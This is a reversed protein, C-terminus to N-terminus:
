REQQATLSRSAVQREPMSSRAIGDGMRKLPNLGFTGGILLAVACAALVLKGAAPALLGGGTERPPAFYMVRLIGAYYYLSIATNLVIAGVLTWGITAQWSGGNAAAGALAAILWFKAAFGALPPLGVLSFLCVAMSAAVLPDRWGAGAFDDLREDGADAAVLGLCLFAGFNMVAYILVYQAVAGIIATDRWAVSPMLAAAAILTGAHAISSYALLRRVSSQRYAAVNAVLMTTISVTAVLATVAQVFAPTPGGVASGLLWVVRVLLIVAASKSAVSLWTVVSLPAGEFVDPCWFHLPVASLKFGISGFLMLLAVVGVTFTAPDSLTSLRTAVTALDLSGAVGFLLSAGFAGLGTTAAGFVLYKVAAEASSRRHREFGALAYSPMSTLEVAIILLLLNTASTMFMMGVASGLLLLLFEAAHPRWRRELLHAIFITGLLMLCILARAFQGFADAVMMGPTAIHGSGGPVALLEVPGGSLTSVGGLALAGAVLAGLVAISSVVRTERGLVIAALLVAAAATALALEPLMLRMTAADPLWYNALLM